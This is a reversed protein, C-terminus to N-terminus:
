SPKKRPQHRYYANLAKSLDPPTVSLAAKLAPTSPDVADWDISRDALVLCNGVQWRRLLAIVAGRTSQGRERKNVHYILFARLNEDIELPRGRKKASTKLGKAARRGATRGERVGQEHGRAFAYGYLKDCFEAHSRGYIAQSCADLELERDALERAFDPATGGAKPAVKDTDPPSKTQDRRRGM